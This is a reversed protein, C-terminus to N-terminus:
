ARFAMIAIAIAFAFLVIAFTAVVVKVYEPKDSDRLHKETTLYLNLVAFVLGWVAIYPLIEELM